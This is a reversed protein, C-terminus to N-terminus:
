DILIEQDRVQGQIRGDEIKKLNMRLRTIFRIKANDLTPQIPGRFRNTKGM